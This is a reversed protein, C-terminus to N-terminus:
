YLKRLWHFRQKKQLKVVVIALITVVLVTYGYRIMSNFTRHLINFCWISYTFDVWCHGFYILVGVNRMYQYRKMDKLNLNKAVLFLFYTAPISFLVGEYSKGIEWERLFYMEIFLGVMSVGFMIISKHLDLVSEKAKFGLLVFVLGFFVGNRTTIFVSNYKSIFDILMENKVLGYWCTDFLGVLYAIIAIILATRIKMRHVILGTIGGAVALAPLYWLHVYSGDFLCEQIYRIISKGDANIWFISCPLYIITWIVYLILVRKVFKWIQSYFDEKQTKDLKIKLFFGSACFFFPVAVRTIVNTVFQAEKGFMALPTLHIAVVFYAMILKVVDIGNYNVKENM